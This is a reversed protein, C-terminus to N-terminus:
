ALESQLVPETMPLTFWFTSGEGEASHVGVKGGLRQVIRSVISLGLGHGHADTLRVRAFVEFIRTQDVPSIGIGNDVVEYLAMGSEDDIRGYVHIRPNPNDSGIYKIANGILNAFVEEIWGEQALARPMDPAIDVKIAYREMEPAFRWLSRQATAVMDVPVAVEQANDLQALWLLQDIIRAMNKSALEVEKLYIQVEENEHDELILKLLGVYGHLINLPSKLDHAVAYSMQDVSRSGAEIRALHKETERRARQEESLLHIHRLASALQAALLQATRRDELSFADPAHAAFALTGYLVGESELPMVLMSTYSGLLAILVVQLDHPLESDFAEAVPYLRVNGDANPMSGAILVPKWIGDDSKLTASCHDFQFMWRLHEGIALLADEQTTVANLSAVIHQMHQLRGSLVHKDILLRRAKNLVEQYSNESSSTDPTKSTM